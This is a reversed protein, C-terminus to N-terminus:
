NDGIVIMTNQTLISHIQILFGLMVAQAHLVRPLMENAEKVDYHRTPIYWEMLAEIRSNFEKDRDM